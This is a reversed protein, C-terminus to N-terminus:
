FRWSLGVFPNVDEASNTVGLNVGADLQIDDTIGYTFGVDFTGVWPSKDETSVASFFEAYFGLAGVLDHSFTITNVFDTHRGPGATNELFDFQTMVGMSWGAPLEVALPLIVGGEWAGNGLQDQSTPAKVYPMVAFATRGGDNGWVNLKLRTTLDGFGRQTLRTNAVRDVTRVHSFSEIVLQVDMWNLLGAKLNLSAFSWAEVRTDGGGSTDRDHSFTVLDSEIQFHGADVTYASETKDPRDTSLERMQERPTPTFLDYQSKDPLADGSAAVLVAHLM